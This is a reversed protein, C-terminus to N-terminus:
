EACGLRGALYSTWQGVTLLGEPDADPISIGLRDEFEMTLEVVDLDDAGLEACTTTDTISEPQRSFQESLVEVVERRVDAITATM